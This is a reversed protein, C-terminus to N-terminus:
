MGAHLERRLRTELSEIADMIEQKMVHLTLLIGANTDDKGESTPDDAIGQRNSM